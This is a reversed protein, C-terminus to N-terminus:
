EVGDKTYEDNYLFFNKSLDVLQHRNEAGIRIMIKALQAKITHPSKGLRKGLDINTERYECITKLLILESNTLGADIPDVYDCHLNNLKSKVSEYNKKLLLIENILKKEIRSFKFIENKQIIFVSFFFFIYLIITPTYYLISECKNLLSFIIVILVIIVSVLMKLRIYASLINAKMALMFIIIFQLISIGETPSDYLSLLATISLCFIQVFIAIKFFSTIFVIISICLTLLNFLNVYSIIGSTLYYSISNLLFVSFGLLSLFLGYNRSINKTM